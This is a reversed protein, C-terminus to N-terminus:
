VVGGRGRERELHELAAVRQELETTGKNIDEVLRRVSKELWVGHNAIATV